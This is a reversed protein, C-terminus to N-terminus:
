SAVALGFQVEAASAILAFDSLKYRFNAHVHPFLTLNTSPAMMLTQGDAPATMLAETGIRGGAGPRNDVVVTYGQARMADAVARAVSDATGGPAFGVIMRVNQASAVASLPVSLGAAPLLTCFDRRNINM